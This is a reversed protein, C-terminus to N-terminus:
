FETGQFRTEQFDTPQQRQSNTLISPGVMWGIANHLASNTKDTEKSSLQYQFNALNKDFYTRDASM